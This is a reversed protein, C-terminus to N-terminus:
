TAKKLNELVAADIIRKEDTKVIDELAKDIEEQTRYLANDDNFMLLTNGYKYEKM